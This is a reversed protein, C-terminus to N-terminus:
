KQILPMWCMVGAAGGAELTVGAHTQARALLYLCLTHRQPWLAGASIERKTTLICGGGDKRRRSRSRSPAKSPDKVRSGSVGLLAPTSPACCVSTDDTWFVFVIPWKKERLTSIFVYGKAITRRGFTSCDQTNKSATFRKRKNWEERKRSEQKGKPVSMSCPTFSHKFTVTHMHQKINLNRFTIKCTFMNKGRGEGEGENTFQNKLLSCFFSFFFM